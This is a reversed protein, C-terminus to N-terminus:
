AFEGAIKERLDGLGAEGADFNEAGAGMKVVGGFGLGL